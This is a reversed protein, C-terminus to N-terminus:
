EADATRGGILNGRDDFLAGEELVLNVEGRMLRFDVRRNTALAIVGRGGVLPADKGFSNVVLRDRSVGLEALADAVARARREGLKRNYGDTGRQDAHGDIYLHVESHRQLPGAATRLAERAAPLLNASDYAFHVRRLVVLADRLEGAVPETTEVVREHEGDARPEHETVTKRTSGCAAISAVLFTSILYTKVM